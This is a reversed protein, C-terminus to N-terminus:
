LGVASPPVGEQSHSKEQNECVSMWENDTSACGVEEFGISLHGDVMAVASGVGVVVVIAKRMVPADRPKPFAIAM